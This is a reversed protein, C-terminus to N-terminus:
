PAGGLLRHGDRYTASVGLPDAGGALASQPQGCDGGDPLVIELTTGPHHPSTLKLSGGLTEVRDALGTIGGGHPDAGGPGDDSFTARIADGDRRVAMRLTAGAGHKATNTAAEAACFWLTRAVDRSLPEDCHEVLAECSATTAIDDLADRLSRNPDLPDMGRAINELARRTTRARQWVPELGSSRALEREIAAVHATARTRLQTGLAARESDAASLLRRRSAELEDVQGVISRRLRANAAVLRLVDQVAGSVPAEISGELVACPAGTTDVVTYGDAPAPRAVGSPRLWGGEGDPLALELDGAGLEAAITETLQAMGGSGIDIADWALRRSGAVAVLVAGAAVEVPHGIAAWAEADVGTTARLVADSVLGVGIVLGAALRPVQVARPLGRGTLLAAAAVGVGAVPLALRYGGVVATVAAAYGLAVALRELTGRVRVSGVVVVAHVLLAVHVLATCRVATDLLAAGSVALAPVFWAYGAGLVLWGAPGIAHSRLLVLGSGIVVLGAALSVIGPRTLYAWYPLVVSAVALGLGVSAATVVVVTVPRASM